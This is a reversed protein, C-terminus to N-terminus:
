GRVHGVQGGVGVERERVGPSKGEGGRDKMQPIAAVGRAKKM